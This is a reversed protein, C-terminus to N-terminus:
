QYPHLGWGRPFNLITLKITFKDFSHTPVGGGGGGPLYLYIM